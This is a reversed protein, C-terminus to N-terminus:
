GYKKEGVISKPWPPNLNTNNLESVFDDGNILEISISNKNGNTEEAAKKAPKTFSGTTIIVAEEIGKQEAAGITERVTPSGITKDPRYRKVQVAKTKNRSEVFVDIGDDRSGSGLKIDYGKSLYYQGVFWEFPKARFCKWLLNKDWESIAKKPIDTKQPLIIDYILYIIISSTIFGLIFSEINM